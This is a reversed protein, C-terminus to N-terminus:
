SICISLLIRSLFVELHVAGRTRRVAMKFAEDLDTM